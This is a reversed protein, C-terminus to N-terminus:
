RQFLDRRFSEQMLWYVVCLCTITLVGMIVAAYILYVKKGGKVNTDSHLENDDPMVPAM